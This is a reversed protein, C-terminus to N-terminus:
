VERHLEDKEYFGGNLFDELEAKRLKKEYISQEFYEIERQLKDIHEKTLSVVLEPILYSHARMEVQKSEDKSSMEKTKNIKSEDISTKEGSAPNKPPRGPKRKLQVYNKLYEGVDKLTCDNERAIRLMNEPSPDHNYEEVIREASWKM